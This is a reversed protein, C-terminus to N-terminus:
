GALRDRFVQMVKTAAARDADTPPYVQIMRDSGAPTDLLFVEQHQMITGLMSNLGDSEYRNSFRSGGQHSAGSRMWHECILNWHGRVTSAWVKVFEVSGLSDVHYEVHILGSAPEPMLDSWNLTLAGALIADLSISDVEPLCSTATMTGGKPLESTRDHILLM